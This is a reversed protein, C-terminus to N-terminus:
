FEQCQPNALKLMIAEITEIEAKRAEKIDPNKQRQFDRASTGYFEGFIKLLSDNREQRNAHHRALAEYVPYAQFPERFRVWVGARGRRFDKKIERVAIGEERFVEAYRNKLDEWRNEEMLRRIEFRNLKTLQRLWLDRTQRTEKQGTNALYLSEIQDLMEFDFDHDSFSIYIGPFFFSREYEIDSERDSRHRQIQSLVDLVERSPPEFSGAISREDRLPRGSFSWAALERVRQDQWHLQHISSYQKILDLVRDQDGSIWVEHEHDGGFLWHPSSSRVVVPHATSGLSMLLGRIDMADHFAREKELEKALENLNECNTADKLNDNKFRDLQFCFNLSNMVGMDLLKEKRKFKVRHGGNEPQFQIDFPFEEEQLNLPLGKDRVQRFLNSRQNTFLKVPFLSQSSDSEPTIVRNELLSLNRDPNGGQAEMMQSGASLFLNKVEQIHRSLDAENSARVFAVNNFDVKGNKFAASLIDRETSLSSNPSRDIVVYSIPLGKHSHELRDYARSISSTNAPYMESEKISGLVVVLKSPDESWKAQAEATKALNELAKSFDHPARLPLKELQSQLKPIGDSRSWDFHTGSFTVLSLIKQEDLHEALDLVSQLNMQHDRPTQPSRRSSDDLVIILRSPMSTATQETQGSLM